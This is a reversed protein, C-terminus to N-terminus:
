TRVEALGGDLVPSDREKTRARFPIRAGQDWFSFVLTEGPYVPGTFRTAFRALRDPNGGCFRRLVALCALGFTSAGHLIPADFGAARAAAPDVHLPNRDGLLRFLLAQNYATPIDMSADPPTDPVAVSDAQVGTSGGFGGGSRAFLSSLSTSVLKGHQELRTEQQVIGGRGSGKDTLGVVRTSVGVEGEPQFAGHFNIDLGGHVVRALEIGAAALWSDDFGLMQAFSPIVKLRSEYVFGLDAEAGDSAAGIALAYQMVDSDCYRKQRTPIALKLLLDTNLPPLASM